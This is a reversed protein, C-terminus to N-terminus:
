PKEKISKYGVDWFYNHVSSQGSIDQNRVKGEIKAFATRAHVMGRLKLM